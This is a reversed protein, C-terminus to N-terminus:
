SESVGPPRQQTPFPLWDPNYKDSLLATDESQVISRARLSDQTERELQLDRRSGRAM